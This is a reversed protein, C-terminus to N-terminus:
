GRAEESALCLSNAYSAVYLDLETISSQPQVWTIHLPLFCIWSCIIKYWVNPAITHFSGKCRWVTVEAKQFYQQFACFYVTNSSVNQESGGCGCAWMIWPRVSPFSVFNAANASYRTVSVVWFGWLYQLIVRDDHIVSVRGTTAWDCLPWAAYRAWLLEEGGHRKRTVHGDAAEGLPRCRSAGGGGDWPRRLVVAVTGDTLDFSFRGLDGRVPVVKIAANWSGLVDMAGAM